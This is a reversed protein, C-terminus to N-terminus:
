QNSEISENIIQNLTKDQKIEPTWTTPPLEGHWETENAGTLFQRLKFFVLIRMCCHCVILHAILCLCLFLLLYYSNHSFGQPTKWTMYITTIALFLTFIISPLAKFFVLVSQWIYQRTCHFIYMFARSVSNYADLNDIIINCFLLGPTAIMAIYILISLFNIPLLLLRGIFDVKTDLLMKPLLGIGWLAVHFFLLILITGIITPYKKISWKLSTMISIRETTHIEVALSYYLASGFLCWSCISLTFLICLIWNNKAIFAPIEWFTFDSYQIYDKLLFGFLLSTLIWCLALFVKRWDNTSAM